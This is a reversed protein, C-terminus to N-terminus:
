RWLLWAVLVDTPVNERDLQFYQMWSGYSLLITEPFEKGATSMSKRDNHPCALLFFNESEIEVESHITKLLPTKYDLELPFGIATVIDQISLKPPSLSNDSLVKKLRNM